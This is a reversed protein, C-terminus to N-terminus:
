DVKHPSVQDSKAKIKKQIYRKIKTWAEVLGGPLFLVVAIFLVSFVIIHFDQLKLALFEKLVVFFVAGIVPGVITGTGGIYVM